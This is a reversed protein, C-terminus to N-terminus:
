AAVKRPIATMAVKARASARRHIEARLVGESGVVFDLLERGLAWEDFRYSPRRMEASNTSASKWASLLDADSLEEIAAGRWFMGTSM